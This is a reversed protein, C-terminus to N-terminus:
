PATPRMQALSKEINDLRKEIADLKDLIQKLIKAVDEAPTIPLPIPSPWRQEEPRKLPKPISPPYVM